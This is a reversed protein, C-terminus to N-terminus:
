RPLEKRAEVFFSPAFMSACGMRALSRYHSALEEQFPLTDGSYGDTEPIHPGQAFRAELEPGLPLISEPLKYDPLAAFFRTRSLGAAALLDELEAKTYTFSRLEKGSHAAWKSAALRDDYVAVGPIGLHDDRAGLLYKLGMRNEIGIVLRGGPELAVAARGLFDKVLARADGSRFSPVWELVGICAVLDFQPKFELDLFDAQIFRMRRTVGEQDAAARIFDLRESAPEVATVEAQRALPLAIQGWGAGVDLVRAGAQSPHLRFFLDRAPDTVIRALWPHKVSYRARVADRWPAGARVQDALERLEAAPADEYTAGVQAGHCEGPGLRVPRGNHLFETM